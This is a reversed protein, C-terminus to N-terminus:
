NEAAKAQAAHSLVVLGLGGLLNGCLAIAGVEVADVASISAGSLLGFGVLLLSVVTHEFPGVALLVGVTYSLIIRGSTEQSAIILYSLLSVLAGGIIARMLTPLWHRHAIEEAIRNLAEPAGSPLANDVSIITLMVGGGVLNLLLTLFWLRAIKGAIHQEGPEFVAAMPDFFNENFLEARGIVLFVIGFGFALAAYVKAFEGVLPRALADVIGLAIIGFVITFGAIFGTALLEVFSQNLRRRGESAAREFIEAPKLMSSMRLWRGLERLPERASPGM